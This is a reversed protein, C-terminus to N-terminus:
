ACTVPMPSSRHPTTHHPTVRDLLHALLSVSVYHLLLHARPLCVELRANTTANLWKREQIFSRIPTLMHWASVQPSLSLLGRSLDRVADRRDHQGTFFLVPAKVQMLVKKYNESTLMNQM